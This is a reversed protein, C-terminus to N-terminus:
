WILHVRKHLETEASRSVVFNKVAALKEEDGPEYGM